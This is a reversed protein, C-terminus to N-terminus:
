VKELWEKVEKMRLEWPAYRLATERNHDVLPQYDSINNVIDRVQRHVVEADLPEIVYDKMDRHSVFGEIEICPNYGILDVLEKPAHGIMVMRSLMAEWYRQTLTEVGNAIKADTDCKPITAVVKSDYMINRLEEDSLRKGQNSANFHKIDNWSSPDFLDRNNRGFEMFDIRRCQLDKGKRYHTVDIGETVVLINIYPLRRRIREANQGSTFVARKVKHRELWRCFRDDLCPWCDWVFPIIEYFLYDPFADFYRNIPEVFRLRAENKCCLFSPLEYKHFFGVLKGIPYHDKATKGGINEWAKYAGMKFNISDKRYYPAVAVVKKM